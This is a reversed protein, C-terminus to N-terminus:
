QPRAAGTNGLERPGRDRVRSLVGRVDEDEPLTNVDIGSSHLVGIFLIGYYGHDTARLIRRVYASPM